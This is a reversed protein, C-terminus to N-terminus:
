RLLELESLNQLMSVVADLYESFAAHLDTFRFEASEKAFLSHKRGIVKGESDKMEEGARSQLVSFFMAYDVSPRVHHMLRNRYRVAIDAKPHKQPIDLAAKIADFDNQAIQGAALKVKMGKEVNKRILQSKEWEPKSTDVLDGGMSEHLLRNVLEQAKVLAQVAQNLLTMKRDHIYYLDNLAAEDEQAPEQAPELGKFSQALALDAEAGMVLNSLELWLAQSNQVDFIRHMGVSRKPFNLWQRAAQNHKPASQPGVTVELETALIHAVRHEGGADPEYSTHVTRSDTRATGDEDIFDVTLLVKRM